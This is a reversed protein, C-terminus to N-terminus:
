HLTKPTKVSAHMSLGYYHNLYMELGEVIRKEKNHTANHGGQCLTM